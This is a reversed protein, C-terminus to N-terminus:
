ERKCDGKEKVLVQRDFIFNEVRTRVAAATMAGTKAARGVRGVHALPHARLLALEVEQSERVSM